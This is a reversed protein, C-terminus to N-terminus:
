SRPGVVLPGSPKPPTYPRAPASGRHQQGRSTHGGGSSGGRSTHGGGSSGRGGHGRHDVRPGGGVHGGRGFGPDVGYPPYDVPYGGWGYMPWWVEQSPDMPQSGSEAARAIAEAERARAEAERLRMRAAEREADAAEEQARVRLTAEHEAPSMWRGGEQVFGRARYADEAEMWRGEFFTHGLATHAEANAPDADLVEGWAERAQTPLAADEAWRALAAWGRVDGPRLAAAREKWVELNTRGSVIKAVLAAQLTVTGPGTEVVVVQPTQKMIVGSLRGGNVLHIEDAGASRGAVVVVAALAWVASGRAMTVEGGTEVICDGPKVTFM